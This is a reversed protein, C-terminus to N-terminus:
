LLHYDNYIEFITKQYRYAFQEPTYNNNYAAKLSTSISKLEEPTKMYVQNIAAVLGDVGNTYTILEPVDNKVSINGGTHSAIM